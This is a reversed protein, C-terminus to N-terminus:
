DPFTSCEYRPEGTSARFKETLRDLRKRYNPWSENGRRKSTESTKLDILILIWFPHEEPVLAAMSDATVITQFKLDDFPKNHRCLWMPTCIRGGGRLAEACVNVGDRATYETYVRFAHLGEISHYYVTQPIFRFHPLIQPVVFIWAIVVCFILLSGILCLKM